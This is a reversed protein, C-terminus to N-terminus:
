AAEETEAGPASPPDEAGAAPAAPASERLLPEIERALLARDVPGIWKFTVIGNRDVIVTEPVGTLGYDIATRTGPDLLTPYAAGGMEELWDRAAAPQDNYLIGLFVVDRGRYARAAALYEPHEIRCPVCWSAWFNLVVVKGRYDSLRVTDTAAVGDTMPMRVLAFDPAPQGPIAPPVFRPDVRMGRLFVAVLPATVALSILVSRWKM